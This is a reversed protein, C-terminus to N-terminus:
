DGKNFNKKKKIVYLPRNLAEDHINAIYLAMLGLCILIIGVLFTLLVGVMFPGSFELGLAANFIIDEILIFLGLLFALCTIIIGLYGALKLPFLSYSVFSSLALKLLKFFSYGAKGFKRQNAKFYVFDKQFGLWDILGRTMRNRETFRNFEEIVKKDILRYDTARPIIRTKGIINIIKYFLSSGIKKIFGEGKNKKRVGVVIDAGKEWKNLFEPILKPPHQLDADMLIAAEGKAQYIGASTAIEKGFNRSFELYKIRSDKAALGELIEVSKDKSSDDVFIIEYDYKGKFDSFVRILENCILSINKEENYVPIVISILKM